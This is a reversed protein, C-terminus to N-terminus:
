GNPNKALNNIAAALVEQLKNVARQAASSAAPRLFPRPSLPPHIVSKGLFKQIEEAYLSRKETSVTWSHPIGFEWWHWDPAVNLNIGIDDTVTFIGAGRTNARKAVVARKIHKHPALRRAEAKIENAGARVAKRLAKKAIRDPLQALINDLDKLGKVELGM